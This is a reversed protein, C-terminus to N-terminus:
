PDEADSAPVAERVARAVAPSPTTGPEREDLILEQVAHVRHADLSNSIGPSSVDSSRASAKRVM